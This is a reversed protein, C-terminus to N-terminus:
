INKLFIISEPIISKSDIAIFKRHLQLQLSSSAMHFGVSSVSRSPLTVLVRAHAPNALPRCGRNHGGLQPAGEVPPM